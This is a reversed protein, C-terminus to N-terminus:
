LSEFEHNLGEMLDYTGSRKTSMYRESICELGAFGGLFDLLRDGNLRGADTDAWWVHSRTSIHIEHEYTDDHRPGHTLGIELPDSSSQRERDLDPDSQRQDEYSNWGVLYPSERDVWRDEGDVFLRVSLQEYTTHTSAQTTESPCDVDDIAAILAERSICDSSQVEVKQSPEDDRDRKPELRRSPSLCSVSTTITTPCIFGEGLVFLQRLLHRTRQTVEQVTPNNMRSQFIWTCDISGDLGIVDENCVIM